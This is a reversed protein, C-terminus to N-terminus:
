ESKSSEYQETLEDILNQMDDETLVILPHSVMSNVFKEKQFRRTFQYRLEPGGYNRTGTYLSYVEVQFQKGTDKIMKYYTAFRGTSYSKKAGDGGVYADEGVLAEIRMVDLGENNPQPDVEQTVYDSYSPMSKNVISIIDDDTIKQLAELADVSQRLLSLQNATTANLGSWSSTEREASNNEGRRSGGFRNFEFRWTWKLPLADDTVRNEGYMVSVEVSPQTDQSFKELNVRVELDAIFDSSTASEIVDTVYNAVEDKVKKVMMYYDRSQQDRVEQQKNRKDVITQYMDNISNYRELAAKVVRKM